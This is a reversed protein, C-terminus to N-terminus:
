LCLSLHARYRSTKGHLRYKTHALRSQYSTSRMYARTRRRARTVHKQPPVQSQANCTAIDESINSEGFIDVKLTGKSKRSDFLITTRTDVIGFELGPGYARPRDADDVTFTIPSDDIEVEGYYVQLKHDGTTQPVFKILIPENKDDIEVPLASFLTTQTTKSENLCERMNKM